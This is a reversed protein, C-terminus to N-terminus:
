QKCGYRRTPKGQFVLAHKCSSQHLVVAQTQVQTYAKRSVGPCPCPRARLQESETGRRSQRKHLSPWLQMRVGYMVMQITNGYKGQWFYWIYVTYVYPQGSGYICVTYSWIYPSKGALFVTYVVYIGIFTRNQGVMYHVYIRTDKAVGVRHRACTHPRSQRRLAHSHPLPMPHTHTHKHTHTHVHTHM